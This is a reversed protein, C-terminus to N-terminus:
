TNEEIVSPDDVEENGRRGEEVSSWILLLGSGVNEGISQFLQASMECIELSFELLIEM